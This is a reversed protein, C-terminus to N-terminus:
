FYAIISRLVAESCYVGGKSVEFVNAVIECGTTLLFFPRNKQYLKEFKGQGKAIVSDVKSFRMQFELTTNELITGPTNDGNPIITALRDL